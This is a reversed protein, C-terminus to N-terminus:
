QFRFLERRLGILESCDASVNDRYDYDGVEQRMALEQMALRYRQGAADFPSHLDRRNTARMYRPSQPSTMSSDQRSVKYSAKPMVHRFMFGANSTNM